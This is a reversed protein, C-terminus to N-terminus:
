RHGRARRSAWEALLALVLLPLIWWPMAHRPERAASPPPAPSPAGLADVLRPAGGSRWRSRGHALAV